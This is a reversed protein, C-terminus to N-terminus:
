MIYTRSIPGLEFEYMVLVFKWFSIKGTDLHIQTMRDQRQVQPVQFPISGPIRRIVELKDRFSILIQGWTLIQFVRSDM